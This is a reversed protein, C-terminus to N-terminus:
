DKREIQLMILMVNTVVHNAKNLYHLDNESYKTLAITFEM